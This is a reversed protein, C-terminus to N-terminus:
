FKINFLKRANNNTVEAVETLGKGQLEAWKKAVEVVYAPENRKGRYPPPALYPADTEIMIKELPVARALRQLASLEGESKRSPFCLIGTFSILFGLDFFDKAQELTGSFCHAVGHRALKGAGAYERLIAMQDEHADRSHIIVPLNLEDALDLQARFAAKQKEKAEEISINEPLHYYDLGGEGIAVVKKSKALQRYFTPDFEESRTKITATPMEEDDVFSQESTHSPHLGITAWVKDYKEAVEVARRSTDRQTGVTIMFINEALSRKIVEDMDDKYANFHVHCHTDILPLM